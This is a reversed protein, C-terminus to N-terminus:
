EADWEGVVVCELQEEESLYLSSGPHHLFLDLTDWLRVCQEQDFLLSIPEEGYEGHPRLQLLAMPRALSEGNEITLIEVPHGFLLAM